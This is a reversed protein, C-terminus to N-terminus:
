IEQSSIGVLVENLLELFEVEPYNYKCRNVFATILQCNDRTYGKTSDVRDLSVSRPGSEVTSMVVKSYICKGDQRKYQELMWDFTLDFDMGKKTSRSQANKLRNYLMPHTAHLSPEKDKNREITAARANAAQRIKHCEYCVSKLGGHFKDPNTEGCDCRHPMIRAARAAERAVRDSEKKADALAMKEAKEAKLRDKCEACQKGAKTFEGSPKKLNCTHCKRKYIRITPPKKARRRRSYCRICLSKNDSNFREPDDTECVKCLFNKTDRQTPVFNPDNRHLHCRKCYHLRGTSYIASARGSCKHCVLKNM